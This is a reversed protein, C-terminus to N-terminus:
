LYTIGLVGCGQRATVVVASRAANGTSSGSSSPGFVYVLAPTGRFTVAGLLRLPRSPGARRTAAPLCGEFQTTATTTAPAASPLSGGEPATTTASRLALAAAVRSRLGELSSAVGLSETTAANASNGQAASGGAVGSDAQGASSSATSSTASRASAQASSTASSASTSQGSLALPVSVLAALVLVAAAVGVLVQPRRRAHIPVPEGPAAVTPAAEGATRVVSAISAARLDPPVPPVPTRLRARVAGLAALRERCPGCGGLHASTSTATDELGPGSDEDLHSSLQEDTLHGETM